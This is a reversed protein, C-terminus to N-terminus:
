KCDNFFKLFYFLLVFKLIGDWFRGLIFVIDMWLFSNIVIEIDIMDVYFLYCDLFFGVCIKSEDIM